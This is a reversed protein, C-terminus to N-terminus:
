KELEEMRRKIDISKTHVYVRQTTRYDAHRLLFGVDDMALGRRRWETAYSHRTTHLHKYPIGAAAICRKWWMHMSADVLPRDHRREPHGGPRVYWLYDDDNLGEVIFYEALRTVLKHELPVVGAVGGKAGEVVHLEANALDVRKVRLNRAEAKRLGSGLLLAMLTGDPEPLACLVAREADTFVEVPAHQPMKVAPVHVMYNFPIRKTRYAWTFLNQFCSRRHQRSKPKADDIIGIIHEDTFESLKLEPWRKLLKASTLRYSKITLPSFGSLRLWELWEDVMQRATPEVSKRRWSFRM